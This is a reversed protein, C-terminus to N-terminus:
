EEKYKDATLYGNKAKYKLVSVRVELDLPLVGAIVQLADTSTTRYANTM